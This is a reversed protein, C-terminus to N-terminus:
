TIGDASTRSNNLPLFVKEWDIFQLHQKTLKHTEKVVVDKRLKQSETVDIRHYWDLVVNVSGAYENLHVKVEKKFNYAPDLRLIKLNKPCKRVTKVTLPM